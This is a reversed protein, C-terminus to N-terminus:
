NVKLFKILFNGTQPDVQEMAEKHATGIGHVNTCQNKMDRLQNEQWERLEKCKIKALEEAKRKKEANVKRRM